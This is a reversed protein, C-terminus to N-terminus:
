KVLFSKRKQEISKLLSKFSEKFLNVGEKLLQLCIEDIDINNNKLQILINNAKSTQLKMADRVIGHELFAQLTKEPMTNITDKGILETVYKIDSYAPNKASTSGWLLRQVNVGKDALKRYETSSFIDKYQQYILRANAIAARGKLEKLGKKKKEDITFSIKEELLQDVLTDVRSVFVSAVSNVQNVQEQNKIRKKVGKLYAQVSQIYQERSFILTVNTNVGQSVLTEIAPFGERTSPVKIMVNSRNVENFLRMGESITGETDHALNPNVELSIFGDKQETKLYIPMFLDAADQIDKITLSDYITLTKEGAQALQRILNDYNTGSTVAKNFISPNSTVGLVGMDIIKQLQGNDILERSIYDLWVSQGFSNLQKIKTRMEERRKRNM